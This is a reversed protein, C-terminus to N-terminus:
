VEAVVKYLVKIMNDKIKNENNYTSGPESLGISSEGEVSRNRKSLNSIHRKNFCPADSRPDAPASNSTWSSLDPIDKYKVQM